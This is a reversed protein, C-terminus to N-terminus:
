RVSKEDLDQTLIQHVTFLKLNLECSIMKLTLRRDSRVLYWMREVNDDTKSTSNKKGRRGDEM